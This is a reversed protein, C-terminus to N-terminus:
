EEEEYALILYLMCCAISNLDSRRQQQHFMLPEYSHGLEQYIPCEKDQFSLLSGSPGYSSSDKQRECPTGCKDFYPAGIAIWFEGM